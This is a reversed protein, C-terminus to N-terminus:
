TWMPVISVVLLLGLAGNLLRWQRDTRLLRALQAGAWCWLTLASSGSVGFVLAMILATVLPDATAGSFAASAGFAMAWAKPNVSVLLLGAVYSYPRADGAGAAGPGGSRAIRWALWLLYASGSLRMGLELAPVANLLSTLGFGACFVLTALGSVMGAILPLSRRVGFNMGSATSLTTAGGPTITTVLAFLILASLFEM